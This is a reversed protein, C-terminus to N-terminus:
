GCVRNSSYIPYQRTVTSGFASRERADGNLESRRTLANQSM